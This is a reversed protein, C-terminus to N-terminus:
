QNYVLNHRMDPCPTLSCARACRAYRCSLDLLLLASHHRPFFFVRHSGALGLLAGGHRACMHPNPGQDFLCQGHLHKISWGSKTVLEAMLADEGTFRKAESLNAFRLDEQIWRPWSYAVAGLDTHCWRM